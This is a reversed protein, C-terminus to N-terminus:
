FTSYLSMLTLGVSLVLGGGIVVVMAIALQEVFTGITKIDSPLGYLYQSAVTYMAEGLRGSKESAGIVQVIVDPVHLKDM